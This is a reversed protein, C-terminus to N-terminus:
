CVATIIQTGPRLRVRWARDLEETWEPNLEKATEGISDLLFEYLRPQINRGGCGHIRGLRDMEQRLSPDSLDLSVM